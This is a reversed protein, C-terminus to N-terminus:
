PTSGTGALEGALQEWQEGVFRSMLFMESRGDVQMYQLLGGPNNAGFRATLVPASRAYLTVSIRPPTLGFDRLQAGPLEEVSMERAPASTNMFQVAMSANAALKADLATAGPGSWAQSGTRELRYTKGAFDIAVSTVQEPAMAMVGKAEFKVLQESEPQAGTIIMAVIFLVAAGGAAAPWWRRVGTLATAV